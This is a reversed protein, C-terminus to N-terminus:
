NLKNIIVLEEVEPIQDQLISEVGDKYTMDILSCGVCAALLKIEVVGKNYSIFELDGGDQRVFMRITEIVNKIEDIIEPDTRQTLKNDM